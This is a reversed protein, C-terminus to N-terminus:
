HAKKLKKKFRRCNINACMPTVIAPIHLRTRRTQSTQMRPALLRWNVRLAFAFLALPLQFNILADCMIIMVPTRDPARNKRLRQTTPVVGVDGVVDYLAGDRM